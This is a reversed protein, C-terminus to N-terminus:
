GVVYPMQWMQHPQATPLYMMQGSLQGQVMMPQAIGPQMPIRPTPPQAPINKAGQPAYSPEADAKTEEAEEPFPHYATQM